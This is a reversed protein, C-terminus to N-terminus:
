RRRKRDMRMVEIWTGLLFLAAIGCYLLIAKAEGSM